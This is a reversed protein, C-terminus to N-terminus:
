LETGMGSIYFGSGTKSVKRFPHSSIFSEVAFLPTKKKYKGRLYFQSPNDDM